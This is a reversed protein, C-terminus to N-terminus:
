VKFMFNYPMTGTYDGLYVVAFWYGVALIVVLMNGFLNNEVVIGKFVEKTMALVVISYFMFYIQLRGFSAFYSSLNFLSLFLLSIFLLFLAIKSEPHKRRYLICVILMVTAVILWSLNVDREGYHVLFIEGYYKQPVIGMANLVKMVLYFIPISFVAFIITVCILGIQLWKYKSKAIWYALLIVVFVVSSIHITISFAVLIIATIYKRNLILSMACFLLACTILQRVQNLSNNFFFCNYVIMGLWLPIYIKENKAKFYRNFYKIAVVVPVYCLVANIFFLGHLSNFILFSLYAVSAYGFDMFMIQPDSKMNQMFSAIGSSRRYCLYLPKMYTSVDIGVTEDRLTAFLILILLSAGVLIQGILPTGAAVEGNKVNYKQVQQPRAFYMLTAVLGFVVLYIM